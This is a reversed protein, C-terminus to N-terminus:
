QGDHFVSVDLSVRHSIKPLKKRLAEEIAPQSFRTRLHNGESQLDRPWVYIMELSLTTLHKLFNDFLPDLVEAKRLVLENGNTLCGSDISNPSPCWEFHISIIKIGSNLSGTSILAGLSEWLESANQLRVDLALSLLRTFHRLSVIFDIYTEDTVGAARYIRPHTRWKM